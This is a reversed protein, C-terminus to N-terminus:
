LCAVPVLEVAVVSFPDLCPNYLVHGAAILSIIMIVSWLSIIFRVM